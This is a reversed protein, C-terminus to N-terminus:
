DGAHRGVPWFPAMRRVARWRWAALVVTLPATVALVHWPMIQFFRNAGISLGAVLMGGLMLLVAQMAGPQGKRSWDQWLLVGAPLAIAAFHLGMLPQDRPWEGPVLAVMLTLVAAGFGLLLLFQTLMRRALVRNMAEGRPMGPVLTLLSQETRTRRLMAAISLLPGFLACMVGFSTGPLAGQLVTAARAAPLWYLVALEALLLALFIVATVGLTASWHLSRLTAVEARAAVSDATPTATRILHRTWTPLGWTFPKGLFRLVPHVPPRATRSACTGKMSMLDNFVKASQWSRLHGSGGDQFLHWLIVTLALMVLAAQTVPQQEHWDRLVAATERWVATDKLLASPIWPFVWFVFWTIPWRLATSFSVLVAGALMTLLLFHGFVAHLLLGTVMAILLFLAVAVERLLRLHGPVLRATIPHNQTNLAGACLWWVFQLGIALTICFAGGAASASKMSALGTIAALPLLLWWMRRLPRTTAVLVALHGGVGPLPLAANMAANM